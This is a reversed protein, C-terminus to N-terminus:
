VARSPTLNLQTLHGCGGDQELAVVLEVERGVPPDDELV